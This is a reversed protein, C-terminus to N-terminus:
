YRAQDQQEKNHIMSENQDTNKNWNNNFRTTIMVNETTMPDKYEILHAQTHDMWIGIKRLKQYESM